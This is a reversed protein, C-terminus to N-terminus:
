SKRWINFSPSFDTDVDFAASGGDWVVTIDDGDPHGDSVDINELYDELAMEPSEAIIERSNDADVGRRRDTIRYVTM